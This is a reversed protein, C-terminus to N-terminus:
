LIVCLVHYAKDLAFSFWFFSLSHTIFSMELRNYDKKLISKLSMNGHKAKSTNMRLVNVM